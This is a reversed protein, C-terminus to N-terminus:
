SRKVQFGWSMAGGVVHPVEQGKGKGQYRLCVLASVAQDRETNKLNSKCMVLTGGRLVRALTM